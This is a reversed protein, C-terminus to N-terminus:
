EFPYVLLGTCNGSCLDSHFQQVAELTPGTVRINQVFVPPLDPSRDEQKPFVHEVTATFGKEADAYYGARQQFARDRGRHAHYGHRRAV